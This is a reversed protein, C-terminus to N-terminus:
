EERYSADIIHQSVVRYLKALDPNDQLFEMHKDLLEFNGHKAPGEQTHEPGAALSKNLAEAILPKLWEFKLRHQKLLDSSIRLMHNTFGSAIVAAVHLAMRGRADIVHVKKSIAKGMKKLEGEAERSDSEIFLPVESFDIRRSKHFVQLPYLVGTAATAAFDLSTLPASGSTHVLLTEEPLIIERVIDEIAEESVALVFIRSSSTSFDLSAKVEADYLRKALMRAHAPTRSYVERVSYGANDLAPALHWALNGSGVVSVYSSM